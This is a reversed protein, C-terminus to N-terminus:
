RRVKQGEYFKEFGLRYAENDFDRIFERAHENWLHKEADIKSTDHLLAYTTLKNHAQDIINEELNKM